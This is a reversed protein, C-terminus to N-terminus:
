QTFLKNLKKKVEQIIRDSIIKKTKSDRFIEECGNLAITVVSEVDYEFAEM